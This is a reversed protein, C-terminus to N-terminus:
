RDIQATIAFPKLKRSLRYRCIPQGFDGSQRQHVKYKLQQPTGRKQALTAGPDTYSRQTQNSVKRFLRYLPLNQQTQRRKPSTPFSPLCGSTAVKLSRHHASIRCPEKRSWNLKL